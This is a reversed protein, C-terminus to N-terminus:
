ANAKTVWFHGSPLGDKDESETAYTAYMSKMLTDDAETEFRDPTDRIYTKYGGFGNMHAPFEQTQTQVATDDDSASSDSSDSDDENSQVYVRPAAHYTSFKDLWHANVQEVSLLGLLAAIAFNKM